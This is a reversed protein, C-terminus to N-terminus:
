PDLSIQAYYSTAYRSEVPVSRLTRSHGQVAYYGKERKKEGFEIAKCTSQIVTTTQLTQLIDIFYQRGTGTKWKQGFSVCGAARGRQVYSM